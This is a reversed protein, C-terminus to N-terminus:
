KQSLFLRLDRLSTKILRLPINECVKTKGIESILVMRISGRTFKKDLILSRLIRQTDLFLKRKILSYLDILNEIDKVTNKSCINLYLSIRAACIMGLAVAEGHTLGKTYSFAAELAHGITHGFNLITRLGKKEKEDREVIRAKISACREIIKLLYDPELSRIRQSNERLYNFLDKDKIISYKIIEAFGEKLERLKLTYLFQPDIFVARPQYFTGVMNKAEKTNIATKGGISADVCALLTTPIQIYPIGRKYISAVFGGLDGVVGGGLCIIFIKRRINELRIIEDIVKFVWKESKAREGDPVEIIKGSLGGLVQNIKKRHLSMIRKNTIIFPFNGINLRKICSPVQRTIGKEIYIKYSNGKLNVSITKKM